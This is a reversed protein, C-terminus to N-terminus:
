FRNKLIETLEEISQISNLKENNLITTLQNNMLQLVSPYEVRINPYIAEFEDKHYFILYPNSEDRFNKWTNKESFANYTLTCLSYSHNKKSLLKHGADFLANLKASNANYIFIFKM